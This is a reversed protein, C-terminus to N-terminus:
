VCVKGITLIKPIILRDIFRFITEHVFWEKILEWIDYDIAYKYIYDDLIKTAYEYKSFTKSFWIIMLVKVAMDDMDLHRMFKRM